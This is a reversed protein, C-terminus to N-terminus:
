RRKYFARIQEVVYELQEMTMAQHVPLTLISRAQAETIPFDGEKYGLDRSCRHLHLPLPYHVKVDVGKQLMFDKLADRDRAQIVYTHYVQRINARRPPLIVDPALGSLGEDYFAAHRIRTDNVAHLDKIVHLGVVAQLTDLRSNTGFIVAEDRNILGHNRLLRVKETLEESDTSVMGGDGWVNLNKLPHLSFEAAIGWSGVPKGNIAGGIAQAADEVVPINHRKGIECIAEMDAPCGTLHVPLLAKTKKTIAAELKAPDINYDDGVDAFVPKAGAMAITGASAIFSNPATIVEDGPGIGLARFILILADAGSNVGTAFRTGSFEIFKKEFAAVEAGLTFDGRLVLKRIDELILSPDKFQQGLYSYDVKM